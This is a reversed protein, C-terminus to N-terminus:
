KKVYELHFKSGCTLCVWEGASLRYWITLHGCVKCHEIELTLEKLMDKTIFM